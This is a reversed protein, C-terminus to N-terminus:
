HRSILILKACQRLLITGSRTHFYKYKLLIQVFTLRSTSVKSNADFLNAVEVKREVMDRWTLPVDEVSDYIEKHLFASGVWADDDVWITGVITGEEEGIFFFPNIFTNTLQLNTM